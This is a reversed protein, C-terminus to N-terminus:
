LVFGNMLIPSFPISHLLTVESKSPSESCVLQGGGGRERACEKGKM